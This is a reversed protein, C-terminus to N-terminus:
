IRSELKGQHHLHVRDGIAQREIMMTMTEIIIDVAVETVLVRDKTEGEQM